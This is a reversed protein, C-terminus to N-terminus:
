RETKEEDMSKEISLYKEYIDDFEFIKLRKHVMEIDWQKYNYLRPIIGFFKFGKCFHKLVTDPKIDRQENFKYPLILKSQALDNLASQDPMAMRKETIRKRAREFLGTEKIKKMNLLLVGANCYSKNIWFHGMIDLAAGFEYNEIDVSYLENIDRRCMVDADIYILKDATEYFDLLLRILTYPTYMTNQNKGDMINARYTDTMDLIRARSEPNKEKLVGDLIACQEDSFPLFLPSQDTLDMTCLLVDLAESTNKVISMVSLLVGKFIKRNGCYCIQIM